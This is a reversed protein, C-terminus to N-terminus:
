NVSWVIKTAAKIGLGQRGCVELALIQDAIGFNGKIETGPIALFGLTSLRYNITVVVIDERSALNGGDNESGAGGTYGGGHIWFMVPRLYRKSGEKPVYPTQINLFLCDESGLDPAQACISGYATAQIRQGVKSYMQSYQFRQPSDAYPIGIFRFSKQDRIGTFWNEDSQVTLEKAGPGSPNADNTINGTQTCLTSLQKEDNEEPWFGLYQGDVSSVIGDSIHYQTTSYGDDSAVKFQLYSFINLFDQEHQELTERSLLNEGLSQCAKLANKQTMPDLLIAGVHNPDDTANLENQYLFTLSTEELIGVTANSRVVPVAWVHFATAYWFIGCLTKLIM